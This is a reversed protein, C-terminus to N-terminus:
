SLARASPPWCPRRLTRGMASVPPTDGGRKGIVPAIVEDRRPHRTVGLLMEDGHNIGQQRASVAADAWAPLRATAATIGGESEIQSFLAWAKSALAHTLQDIYFSGAAPDIVQDLRAEAAM